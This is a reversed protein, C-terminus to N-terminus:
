YKFYRKNKIIFKYNELLNEMKIIILLPTYELNNNKSIIEIITNPYKKKNKM